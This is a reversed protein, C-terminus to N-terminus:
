DKVDLKEQDILKGDKLIITGETMAVNMKNWLEFSDIPKDIRKIGDYVVMEGNTKISM